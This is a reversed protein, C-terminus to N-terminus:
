GVTIAAATVATNNSAVGDLLGTAPNLVATLFVPTTPLEGPVLFKLKYPRSAGPKLSVKLPVTALPTGSTAAGATASAYVAVNV